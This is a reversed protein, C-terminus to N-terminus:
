FNSLKKTETIKVFYISSGSCYTVARYTVVFKTKITDYLVPQLKLCHKYLYQFHLSGLALAVAFSSIINVFNPENNRNFNKNQTGITIKFTCHISSSFIVKNKIVLIFLNFSYESQLEYKIYTELKQIYKTHM